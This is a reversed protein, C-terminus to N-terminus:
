EIINLHMLHKLEDIRKELFQRLDTDGVERAFAQTEHHFANHVSKTAIARIRKSLDIPAARLANLESLRKIKQTTAQLLFPEATLRAMM